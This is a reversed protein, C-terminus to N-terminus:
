VKCVGMNNCGPSPEPCDQPGECSRTCHAGKANFNYCTDDNAEDCQDDALDCPCMFGLPSGQCAASADADPGGDVDGDGNGDGDGDGGDGDGDDDSSSCAPAAAAVALLIILARLASWPRSVSRFSRTRM